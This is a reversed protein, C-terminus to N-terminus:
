RRGPGFGTEKLLGSCVSRRKYSAEYDAADFLSLLKFLEDIATFSDGGGM